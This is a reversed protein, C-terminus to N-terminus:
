LDTDPGPRGKAIEPGGTRTRSCAMGDHALLDVKGDLPPLDPTAIPAGVEPSLGRELMFRNICHACRRTRATRKLYGRTLHLGAVSM